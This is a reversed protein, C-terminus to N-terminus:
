TARGVSALFRQRLADAETLRDVHYFVKARKLLDRIEEVDEDSLQAALISDLTAAARNLYVGAPAHAPIGEDQMEVYAARMTERVERLQEILTM